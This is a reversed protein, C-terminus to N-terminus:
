WFSTGDIWFFDGRCAADSRERVLTGPKEATWVIVGSEGAARGAAHWRAGSAGASFGGGTLAMAQGVTM